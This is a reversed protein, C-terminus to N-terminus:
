TSTRSLLPNELDIRCDNEDSYEEELNNPQKKLLRPDTEQKMEELEKAKGWLFVYLGIIVAFAGVLSGVYTEEHLVLASFAAVIVTCLPNYMTAYLPGRISTCWTLVYYYVALVIGQMIARLAWALNSGTLLLCGLLWKKDGGQLSFLYKITPSSQIATNLLKPGKLFSM